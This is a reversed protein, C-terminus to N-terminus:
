SDVSTPTKQVKGGKVDISAFMTFCAHLHPQRLGARKWWSGKIELPHWCLLVEEGSSTSQLGASSCILTRGGEGLSQVRDVPDPQSHPGPQLSPPASGVLAECGEPRKKERSLLQHSESAEGIIQIFFLKASLNCRGVGAWKPGWLAGHLTGLPAM